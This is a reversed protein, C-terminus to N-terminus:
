SVSSFHVLLTCYVHFSDCKIKDTSLGAAFGECVKNFLRTANAKSCALIPGWLKLTIMCSQMTLKVEM